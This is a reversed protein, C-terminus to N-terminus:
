YGRRRRLRGWATMAGEGDNTDNSAIVEFCRLRDALYHALTTIAARRRYSAAHQIDTLMSRSAMSLSVELHHELTEPSIREMRHYSCFLFM